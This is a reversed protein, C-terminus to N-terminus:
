AEVVITGVMGQRHGMPGSSHPKCYYQYTGPQDFTHSWSGGKQLWASADDGSGATGWQAPDDASVTHGMSDQNTWTVTDGAHITMSKPTFAMNVMAVAHSGDGADHNAVADADQADHDHMADSSEAPASSCGALLLLFTLGSALTAIGRLHPMLSLM